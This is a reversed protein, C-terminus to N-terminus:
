VPRSSVGSDQGTPSMVVTQHTLLADCFGVISFGFNESLTHWVTKMVALQAANPEKGEVLVTVPRDPRARERHISVQGDDYIHVAGQWPREVMRFIVAYSPERRRQPMPVATRSVRRVASPM